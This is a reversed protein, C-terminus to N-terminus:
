QETKRGQVKFETWKTKEEKMRQIERSTEENEIINKGNNQHKTKLKFWQDTFSRHKEENKEGGNVLKVNLGSIQLSIQKDRGKQRKHTQYKFWQDAFLDTKSEGSEVANEM